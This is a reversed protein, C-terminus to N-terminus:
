KPENPVKILNKIDLIVMTRHLPRSNKLLKKPSSEAKM